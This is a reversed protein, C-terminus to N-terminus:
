PPPPAPVPRAAEDVASSVQSFMTDLSDGLVTLGVITLVPAAACGLALLVVVALLWKWAARAKPTPADPATPEM